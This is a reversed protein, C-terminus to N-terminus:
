SSRVEIRVIDHQLWIRGSGSNRVCWKSQAARDYVPRPVVVCFHGLALMDQEGSDDSVFHVLPTTANKFWRVDYGHEFPDDPEVEIFGLLEMLAGIGKLGRPGLHYTVHNIMVM